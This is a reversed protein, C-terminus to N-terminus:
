VLPSMSLGIGGVHLRIFLITSLHVRLSSSVGTQMVATKWIGKQMKTYWTTKGSLFINKCRQMINGYINAAGLFPLYSLQVGQLERAREKAGECGRKRAGESEKV